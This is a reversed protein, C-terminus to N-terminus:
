PASMKKLLRKRLEARIRHLRSEVSKPTLGTQRSIEDLTFGSVYKAELMQRDDCPLGALEEELLASLPEQGNNTDNQFSSQFLAAFRELLASYRIGKRRGDRAASRAVAKLWGWFVEESNFVRIYRVVRLFTQQLAEQTEQDQGHNIVLLFRYLRSFYQAHFERFATEEGAALRSTLATTANPTSSSERATEMANGGVLPFPLSSNASPSLVLIL